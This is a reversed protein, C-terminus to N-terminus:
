DHSKRQSGPQRSFLGSLSFTHRTEAAPRAGHGKQGEHGKGSDHERQGEQRAAVHRASHRFHSHVPHGAAAAYEQPAEDSAAATPPAAGLPTPSAPMAAPESVAAEIARSASQGSDLPAAKPAVMITLQVPVPGLARAVDKSVIDPKAADANAAALGLGGTAAPPPTASVAAVPAAVPARAIQKSPHAAPKLSPAAARATPTAAKVAAVAPRAPAAGAPASGGPGSNSAEGPPQQRDSVDLRPEAQPPVSALTFPAVGDSHVPLMAYVATGILMPPVLLVCASVGIQGWFDHPATPQPGTRVM